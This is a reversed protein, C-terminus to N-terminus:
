RKTDIIYVLIVKITYCYQFIVFVQQITDCNKFLMLTVYYIYCISDVNYYRM